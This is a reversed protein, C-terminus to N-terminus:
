FPLPNLHFNSEKRREEEEEEEQHGVNFLEGQYSLLRDDNDAIHCISMWQLFPILTPNNFDVAYYVGQM